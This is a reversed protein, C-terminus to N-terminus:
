FAVFTIDGTISSITTVQVQNTNLRVLDIAIDNNGERAQYVFDLTNLNHTIIFPVMATSNFTAKYKKSTPELAVLVLTGINNLVGFPGVVLSGNIITVEGEINLTGNVTLDGYILYQFDVPVTITEGFNIIKKTGTGGVTFPDWDTDDGAWPSAKLRWYTGTDLTGVLMGEKRRADPIANRETNDAVNRLGDKGYAADTIAYTDTSSFPAITGSLPITGPIIM